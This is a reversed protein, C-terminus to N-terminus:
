LGSSCSRHYLQVLLRLRWDAGVVSTAELSEENGSGRVAGPTRDEAYGRSGGHAQASNVCGRERGTAARRGSENAVVLSGQPLRM